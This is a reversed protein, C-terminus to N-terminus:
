CNVLEKKTFHKQIPSVVLVVVCTGVTARVLKTRPNKM